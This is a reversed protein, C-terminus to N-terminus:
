STCEGNRTSARCVRFVLRWQERTAEVEGVAFARGGFGTACRPAGVCRALNCNVLVVPARVVLRVSGGDRHGVVIGSGETDGNVRVFGKDALAGGTHDLALTQAKNASGAIDDDLICKERGKGIEMELVTM